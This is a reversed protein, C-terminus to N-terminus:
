KPSTRSNINKKKKETWVKKPTKDLTEKILKLPKYDGCHVTSAVMTLLTLSLITKM